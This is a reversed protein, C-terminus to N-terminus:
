LHWSGAGLELTARGGARRWLVRRAARRRADRAVRGAGRAPVQVVREVLELVLRGLALADRLPEVWADNEHLVYIRPM